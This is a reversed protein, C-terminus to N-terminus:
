IYIAGYETSKYVIMYDFALLDVDDTYREDKNYVVSNGPGDVGEYVILENGIANIYVGYSFLRIIEQEKTEAIYEIVSGGFTYFVRNENSVTIDRCEFSDIIELTSINYVNMLENDRAYLYQDDVTFNSGDSSIDLMELTNSLELDDMSFILLESEDTLGVIYNGSMRIEKIEVESNLIVLEEKEFDYFYLGIDENFSNFVIGYDSKAYKLISTEVIPILVGDSSIRNLHRKKSDIVYYKDDYNISDVINFINDNMEVRIYETKQFVVGGESDDLGYVEEHYEDFVYVKNEWEGMSWHIVALNIPIDTNDETLIDISPVEEVTAGNNENKETSEDIIENNDMEISVVEDSSSQNQCGTLIMTGFVMIVILIKTHNYHQNNSKNL